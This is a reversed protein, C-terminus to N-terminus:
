KNPIVFDGLLEPPALEGNSIQHCAKLLDFNIQQTIVSDNKYDPHKMVFDRMWSATTILEGSAKKKLFNFYKTVVVRTEQKLNITDMYIHILPLLGPYKYEGYDKGNFIENMTMLDYEEEMPVKESGRKSLDKRFYYKETNAAGRKKATAMNEEVKSIPIYFNLDFASMIRTIFVIFVVYAANEFDTLSIEMPRFEVRWGISSGPPPPKFRVTQWNTSQINEFHDSFKEDDLYLKDKYIVLPDRIYLHAIHDALPEDVGGELLRQKVDSDYILKVDNYCSQLKSSIYCDVSDYRSKNIVFKNNQLPKLGREEETRDDVSDAIIGWRCDVDSLYGRFIPSAATMALMIPSLAVFGDYFTRAEMINCCQFTCQLCCCGMGFAMSDMYINNPLQPPNLPSNPIPLPTHQTNKDQFLPVNIEVKSGRRMRINQTLTSFRFHPHIIEDPTFCSRAVPGGPEFYPFCFQGQQVAGLLPFNAITLIRENPKLHKEVAKRRERMSAEINVTDHIGGSGFPSGPTGEIM